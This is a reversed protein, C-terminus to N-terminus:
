QINATWYKLDLLFGQLIKQLTIFDSSIAILCRAEPADTWGTGSSGDDGTRSHV